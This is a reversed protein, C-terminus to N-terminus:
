MGMAHYGADVYLTTGSVNKADYGAVGFRAPISNVGAGRCRSPTPSKM